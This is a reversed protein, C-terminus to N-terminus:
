LEMVDKKEDSTTSDSNADDGKEGTKEDNKM